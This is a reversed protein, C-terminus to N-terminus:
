HNLRRTLFKENAIFGLLLLHLSFCAVHCTMRPDGRRQELLFTAHSIHHCVTVQFKQLFREPQVPDPM